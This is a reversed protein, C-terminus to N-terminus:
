WNSLNHVRLQTPSPPDCQFEHKKGSSVHFRRHTTLGTVPTERDSRRAMRSCGLEALFAEWLALAWALAPGGAEGEPGARVKDLICVCALFGPKEGLCNDREKSAPRLANFSKGRGRNGGREKNQENRCSDYWGNRIRGSSEMGRGSRVSGSTRDGRRWGEDTGPLWGM